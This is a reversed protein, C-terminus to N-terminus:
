DRITYSQIAVIVEWLINRLIALSALEFTAILPTCHPASLATNIQTDLFTTIAENQEVCLDLSLVTNNLFVLNNKKVKTLGLWKLSHLSTLTHFWVRIPQILSTLTYFLVRKPQTLSHFKVTIM